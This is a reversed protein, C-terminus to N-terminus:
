RGDKDKYPNGVLDSAFAHICLIYKSHKRNQHQEGGGQALRLLLLVIFPRRGM